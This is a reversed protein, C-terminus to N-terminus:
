REDGSGRILGRTARDSLKALNSEALADMPVGLMTCLDALYWLVDGMEKLLKEPVENFDYDGRIHKAVVQGAEGAEAALKLTLYTMWQEPPYVATEHAKKQYENFNM